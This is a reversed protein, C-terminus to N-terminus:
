KDLGKRLKATEDIARIDDRSGPLSFLEQFESFQRAEIGIDPYREKEAYIKGLMLSLKGEDQIGWTETPSPCSCGSTRLLYFKRKFRVLAWSDYSYSADNDDVIGYVYIQSRNKILDENRAGDGGDPHGVWRFDYSDKDPDNCWESIKLLM